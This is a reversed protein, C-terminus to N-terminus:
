YYYIPSIDKASQLLAFTPFKKKVIRELLEVAPWESQHHGIDMVMFGDPVYYNHHTVDGTVLVQAGKSLADKISGQGGGSSVAVRSIRCGLPKSCRIDSANFSKKVLQIFEQSTLKKKLNGVVGFGDAGLVECGELGLKEAM